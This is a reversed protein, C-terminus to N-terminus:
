RYDDAKPSSNIAPKSQNGTHKSFGGFVRRLALDIENQLAIVKEYELNEDRLYQEAQGALVGSGAEKLVQLKALLSSRLDDVLREGLQLRPVIGKLFDRGAQLTQQVQDLDVFGKEPAASLAAQASELQKICEDIKV